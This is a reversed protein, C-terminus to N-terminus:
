TVLDPVPSPTTVLEGAPMSQPESHEAVNSSSATTVSVAPAVVPEDNSPQPPSQSLELPSVQSSVIDVSMATSAVKVFSMASNATVTTMSPSPLPVTVLEGAPM